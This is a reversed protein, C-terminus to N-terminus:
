RIVAGLISSLGAGFRIAAYATILLVTIAIAFSVWEHKDWFALIKTGIGQGEM